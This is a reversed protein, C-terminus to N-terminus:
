GAEQEQKGSQARAAKKYETLGELGHPTAYVPDEREGGACAEVAKAAKALERGSM